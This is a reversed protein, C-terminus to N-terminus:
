FVRDADIGVFPRRIIQLGHIEYDCPGDSRMARKCRYITDPAAQASDPHLHGGCTPCQPLAGFTAGDAVRRVLEPKTGNLLQNNLKLLGKLEELTRNDLRRVLAERREKAGPADAALLIRGHASVDNEGSRDVLLLVAAVHKCRERLMCSCECLARGGAVVVVVVEPRRGHGVGVEFCRTAMRPRPASITALWGEACPSRCREAVKCEELLVRGAQVCDRGLSQLTKRAAIVDPPAQVVSPVGQLPSTSRRRKSPSGGSSGQNRAVRVSVLNTSGPMQIGDKGAELARAADEARAYTVLAWVRPKGNRHDANPLYLSSIEGFRVCVERLDTETTSEPLGGLFVKRVCATAPSDPLVSELQDGEKQEVTSPELGRRQGEDLTGQTQVQPSAEEARTKEMQKLQEMCRTAKACYADHRPDILLVREYAARALSELMADGGVSHALKHCVGGYSIWVKHWSLPDFGPQRQAVIAEVDALAAPLRGLTVFCHARNLLASCRIKGDPLTDILETFKTAAAAPAISQDQLASTVTRLTQQAQAMDVEGAAVSSVVNLFPTEKRAAMTDTHSQPKHSAAASTTTVDRDKDGRAVKSQRMDRNPCYDGAKSTVDVDRPRKQQPTAVEFDPSNCRSVHKELLHRESKEPTAALRGADAHDLHVSRQALNVSGEIRPPTEAKSESDVCRFAASESMAQQRPPSLSPTSPCLADDDRLKQLRTGVPSAPVSAPLAEPSSTTPEPVERPSSPTPSRLADRSYAAAEALACAQLIESPMKAVGVCPVDGHFPSEVQRRMHHVEASRLDVHMQELAHGSFSTSNTRDGETCHTLSVHSADNPCASSLEATTRNLVVEAADVRDM